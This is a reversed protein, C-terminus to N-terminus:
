LLSNLSFFNANFFKDFLVNGLFFMCAFEVCIFESWLSVAEKNKPSSFVKPEAM